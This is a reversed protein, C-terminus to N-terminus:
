AVGTTPHQGSPRKSTIQIVGTSFNSVTTSTVTSGSCNEASGAHDELLATIGLASPASNFRPCASLSRPSPYGSLTSCSSSIPFRPSMIITPSSCQGSGHQEDLKANQDKLVPEISKMTSPVAKELSISQKANNHALSGLNEQVRSIGPKVELNTAQELLILTQRGVSELKNVYVSPDEIKNPEQQVNDSHKNISGLELSEAEKKSPSLFGQRLQINESSTLRQFLQVAADGTPDLWDVNSFMEQVKAFAEIPLGGKEGIGAVEMPGLQNATDMESLLVKLWLVFFIIFKQMVELYFIVSESCCICVEARFEKPFRDKADWLIDIEDRNLMLINSRIFATNFMVRFMIEEREQDADLSICELVVDGQIHCHIDIKILECDAQTVSTFKM